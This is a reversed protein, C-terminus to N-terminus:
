RLVMTGKTVLSIPTRYQAFLELCQRTLKYRGEIPQYPDTATGVAVQQRHWTRKSLEQALVMPLNTKAFIIGFFDEAGGLDFYRHTSSAFCFQCRHVCGRYPNLSWKFPMGQVKNLASKVLMERYEPRAM